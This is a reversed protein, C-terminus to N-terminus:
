EDGILMEIAKEVRRGRTEERKADEIWWIYQKRRSPPLAEWRAKAGKNESLARRLGDPVAPATSRSQINRWAGSAKADEVRSLGAETMKGERIMKLARRKNHESWVSKPKRPTFKQMYREDDIRKVLSDIWGFCIAEEVADVYPIRPKGTHKKFYVLWIEGAKAHNNELWRRWEKRNKVYLTKERTM